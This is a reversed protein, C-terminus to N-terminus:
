NELNVYACLELQTLIFAAAEDFHGEYDDYFMESVANKIVSLVMARDDGCSM